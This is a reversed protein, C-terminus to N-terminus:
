LEGKRLRIEPEPVRKTRESIPVSLDSIGPMGDVKEGIPHLLNLLTMQAEFATRKSLIKDKHKILEPYFGVSDKFYQLVEPNARRLKEQEAEYAARREQLTKKEAENKAQREQIKRATEAKVLGQKQSENIGRLRKALKQRDESYKKIIEKQEAYASVVRKTYERLKEYDEL